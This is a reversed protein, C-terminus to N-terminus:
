GVAKNACVNQWELAGGERLYKGLILQNYGCGLTWNVDIKSPRTSPCGLLTKPSKIHAFLFIGEQSLILPNSVGGGEINAVGL